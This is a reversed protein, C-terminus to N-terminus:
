TLRKALKDLYHRSIASKDTLVKGRNNVFVRAFDVGYEAKAQDVLQQEHKSRLDRLQDSIAKWHFRRGDNFSFEKWFEDPSSARYREAVYKWESWLKKLSAWVNNKKGSFVDRWYRLAIPAGNVSLLNTGCDEPDWSPQEDDWVRDLRSINTAFTISPPERLDCEKYRVIKGFGVTVAYVKEHENISATSSTNANSTSANSTSANQPSTDNLAGGNNVPTHANGFGPSAGTVTSGVLTQLRTNTTRLDLPLVHTTTICGPPSNFPPPINYPAPTTLLPALVPLPAQLLSTPPLGTKLTQIEARLHSVHEIMSHMYQAVKATSTANERAREEEKIKRRRALEERTVYPHKDCFTKAWSLLRNKQELTRMDKSRKTASLQAGLPANPPLGMMENRRVTSLKLKKAKSPIAAPGEKNAPKNKTIGGNRVGRHARRAIPLLCQWRIKNESFGILKEKLVRMNGQTGLEYQKCLEVLATRKLGNLDRYSAHFVGTDKEYRGPLMLTDSPQPESPYSIEQCQMELLSLALEQSDLTTRVVALYDPDLDNFAAILSSLSGAAAVAGNSISSGPVGLTLLTLPPLYLSLSLRFSPCAVPWDM